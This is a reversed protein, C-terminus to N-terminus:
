VRVREAFREILAPRFTNGKNSYLKLQSLIKVTDQEDLNYMMAHVYMLKQLDSLCDDFRLADTTAREANEKAIAQREEDTADKPIALKSSIFAPGQLKEMQHHFAKGLRLLESLQWQKDHRFCKRVVEGLVKDAYAKGRLKALQKYEKKQREQAAYHLEIMQVCQEAGHLYEVMMATLCDIDYTTLSTM